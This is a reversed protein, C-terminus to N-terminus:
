TKASLNWSWVAMLTRTFVLGSWASPWWSSSLTNSGLSPLILVDEFKNHEETESRHCYYSYSLRVPPLHLLNLFFSNPKKGMMWFFTALSERCRHYNLPFATSLPSPSPWQCSSFLGLLLSRALSTGRYVQDWSPAPWRAWPCSTASTCIGNTLM